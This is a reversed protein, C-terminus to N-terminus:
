RCKAAVFRRTRGCAGAAIGSLGLSRTQAEDVIEEYRRPEPTKKRERCSLSSLVTVTFPLLKETEHRHLM